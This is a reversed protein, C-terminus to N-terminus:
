PGFRREWALASRCIGDLDDHEAQWGLLRKLKTSDSVLWPSDGPRRAATKIHFENQSVKQMAALVQAVSYGRGYGCNFDQSPGGNLLYQLALIHIQAIDEIHIYDRVCTGDATPYDSGYIDVESIKGLAAQAAVHVLHYANGTRQGNTGDLAAGAVNFYRLIAHRLKTTRSFDKLIEECILKSRGYPNIPLKVVSEDILKESSADGFVNSSSSFVLNEVGAQQAAQLTSLLGLVNNEYYELPQQVSEKVNLKAAFHIISHVKYDGLVQSLLRRDRIDGQIFEADPSVAEVFGTSLNDFVVVKYQQQLLRTVTHSGIYGAGGTVLVTTTPM